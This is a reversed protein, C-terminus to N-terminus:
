DNLEALVFTDADSLSNLPLAPLPVEAKTQFGKNGLLAEFIFHPFVKSLIHWQSSTPELTACCM